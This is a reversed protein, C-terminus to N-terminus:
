SKKSSDKFPNMTKIIDSKKDLKENFQEKKDFNNFSPTTIYISDDIFRTKFQLKSQRLKGTFCLDYDIDMDVKGNKVVKNNNFYNIIHSKELYYYDKFVINNAKEFGSLKNVGYTKLSGNVITTINIYDIDGKIGIVLFEMERFGKLSPDMNYIDRFWIDSLFQGFCIQPNSFQFRRRPFEWNGEENKFGLIYQLGMADYTQQKQETSYSM